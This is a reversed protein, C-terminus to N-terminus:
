CQFLYLAPPDLMLLLPECRGSVVLVLVAVAVALVAVTAAEAPLM